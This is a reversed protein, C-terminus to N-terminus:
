RLVLVVIGMLTPSYQKINYRSVECRLIYGGSNVDWEPSVYSYVIVSPLCSYTSMLRSWFFCLKMHSYFCRAEKGRALTNGILVRDFLFYVFSYIVIFDPCFLYVVQAIHMCSM